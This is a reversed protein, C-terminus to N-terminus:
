RIDFRPALHDSGSGGITTRIEWLGPMFLNVNTVDYTGPETGPQVSPKVSAGHGMAPMWPVVDVDLGSAPAGDSIRSVVLRLTNVGRSPTADPASHVSVRYGGGDTTVVAAPEASITGTGGAGADSCGVLASGALPSAFLAFLSVVVSRSLWAKM